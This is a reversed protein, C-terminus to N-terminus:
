IEYARLQVHVHPEPELRPQFSLTFARTSPYSVCLVCLPPHFHCSGVKLLAPTVPRPGFGCRSESSTHARAASSGIFKPEDRAVRIYLYM